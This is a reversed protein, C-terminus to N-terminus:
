KNFIWVATKSERVVTYPREPAAALQIQQTTETKKTEKKKLPEGVPNGFLDCQSNGSM